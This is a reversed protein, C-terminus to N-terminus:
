GTRPHSYCIGHPTDKILQKPAFIRQTGRIMQAGRIWLTLTQIVREKRHKLCSKSDIKGLINIELFVEMLGGFIDDIKKYLDNSWHNFPVGHIQIWQGKEEKESLSITNVASWWPYLRVTLGEFDWFGKNIMKFKDKESSFFFAKNNEFPFIDFNGSVSFRKSLAMGTSNWSIVAKSAEIIIAHDWYKKELLPAKSITSVDQQILPKKVVANGNGYGSNLSLFFEFGTVLHAWRDRGNEAPLFTLQKNHKTIITLKFFEGNRNKDRVLLLSTEGKFSEWEWRGYFDNKGEKKMIDKLWGISTIDLTFHIPARTNRTEERFLIGHKINFLAFANRIKSQLRLRFSRTKFIKIFGLTLLRSGVKSKDEFEKMRKEQMGHRDGEKHEERNRHASAGQDLIAALIGSM